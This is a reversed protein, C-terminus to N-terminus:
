TNFIIRSAGPSRTSKSSMHKDIFKALLLRFACNIQSDLPLLVEPIVLLFYYSMIFRENWETDAGDMKIM